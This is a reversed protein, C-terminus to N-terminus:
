YRWIAPPTEDENFINSKLRNKDTTKQHLDILLYSHPNETAEKYIALLTPSNGPDFQSFFRQISSLDRPNKFLVIYSSNLSIDRAGKTQNFLNQTIFIINCKYRSSGVSFLEAVDSSIRLAQDDIVFTVNNGFDESATELDKMTPIGEIFETVKENLEENTPQKQNYYYYIINPTEQFYENSSTLLKQVFTTKGCKSPGAILMTFPNFFTLSVEEHSTM